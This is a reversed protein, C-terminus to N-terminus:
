EALLGLAICREIAARTARERAACERCLYRGAVFAHLPPNDEGCTQCPQAWESAAFTTQAM